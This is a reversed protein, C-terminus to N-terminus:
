VLNVCGCFSKEKMDATLERRDVAFTVILRLVNRLQKLTTLQWNDRGRSSGVVWALFATTIPPCFVVSTLGTCDKFANKGLTTLSNPLTVSTLGICGYFAQDCIMVIGDPLALSTLGRCGRFAQYPIEKLSNPLTPSTLETWITCVALGLAFLTDPVELPNPLMLSTLGTCGCFTNDRIEKLSNPLTLSTLGTCDKFVNVGIATISNPLTLSTLGTCGHFARKRIEKLSNPLTLSTLGRCYEFASADIATISEPLEISTLRHCACFVRKAIKKVGSPVIARQILYRNERLGVVANTKILLNSSENRMPSLVVLEDLEATM